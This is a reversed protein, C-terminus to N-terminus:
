GQNDQLRRTGDPRQNQRQLIEQQTLARDWIVVEDIDGNFWEGNLNVRRGINIDFGNTNFNNNVSYDVVGDIYQSLTSGDFTIALHHWLGDAIYISGWTDNYEGIHSVFGNGMLMCSRENYVLTGYNFVVMTNRSTTRVWAELTRANNGQPLQAYTGAVFTNAGNYSLAMGFGAFVPEDIDNLNITIFASFTNVGSGLVKASGGFNVQSFKEADVWANNKVWFVGTLSDINFTANVTSDTGLSYVYTTNPAPNTIQLQAISDGIQPEDITITIPSLQQSVTQNSLSIFLWFFALCTVKSFKRLFLIYNIFEKM